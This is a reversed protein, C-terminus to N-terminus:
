LSEEWGNIEESVSAFKAFVNTIANWRQFTRQKHKTFVTVILLGLVAIVFVACLVILTINGALHTTSVWQQAASIPKENGLLDYHFWYGAQEFINKFTPADSGPSIFFGSIWLGAGILLVAVLLWLFVKYLKRALPAQAAKKVKANEFRNYYEVMEDTYLNSKLYECAKECNVETTVFSIKETAQKAILKNKAPLKEFYLACNTLLLLFNFAATNGISEVEEPSLKATQTELQKKTEDFFAKMEDDPTNSRFCNKETFLWNMCSIIARDQTQLSM